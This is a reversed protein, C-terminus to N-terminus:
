YYIEYTIVVTYIEGAVLLVEVLCTYTYAWIGEEVQGLFTDYTMNQQPWSVEDYLSLKMEITIKFLNRAVQNDGPHELGMKTYNFYVSVAFFLATTTSHNLRVNSANDHYWYGLVPNPIDLFAGTSNEKVRIRYIGQGYEDPFSWSSLVFQAKASRIPLILMMLVVLVVLISIKKRHNM